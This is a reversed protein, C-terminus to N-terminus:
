RKLTEPIESLYLRGPYRFLMLSLLIPPSPLAM